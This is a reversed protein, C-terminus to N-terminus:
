LNLVVANNSVPDAQHCLLLALLAFSSGARLVSIGQYLVAAVVSLCSVEEQSIFLPPFSEMGVRLVKVLNIPSSLM